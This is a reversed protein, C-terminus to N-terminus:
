LRHLERYSKPTIGTQKKFINNFYAAYEFGLCYAVETISWNSQRLMVKSQQMIRDIIHETTTKGTVEKLARNLHNVHVSLKAAYDKATKLQLKHEPSDIPFQRDLLEMFMTTIRVSGNMLLAASSAPQMKMAEHIVLDLYSRMLDYKHIYGSELGRNMKEFLDTLAKEQDDDIFFIPITDSRFLPSDAISKSRTGDNFFDETFLCFYGAQQESVAEWSYPVNRNFFILANRDVEIEQNGYFLKGRGLLLSVKYFDRRSYSTYRNCFKRPFVNFHSRAGTKFDPLQPHLKAVPHNRYFDELTENSNM